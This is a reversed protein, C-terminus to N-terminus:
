FQFYIFDYAEGKQLYFIVLVILVYAASRVPFPVYHWLKSAKHEYHRIFYEVIHLLFLAAMWVLEPHKLLELMPMQIMKVTMDWAQGISQARFFVWTWTIVHFFVLVAFVRYVKSKRLQEVWGLRNLKLSWKHVIQLLGHVGGWVVFTWMAGHWLGSILMAALLNFQVRIPGKRNGGLGIYIYDRIWRSLSIHWRKWFETPSASLYPTDFNLILRIGLICGLGMAMDSYASFDYYIQFGFGYAAIWSEVSSIADGKAFLPNVIEAIPDALAIKKLLGVVFLFLGYKIESWRLKKQQIEDLQPILEDGRMIPGAVLQPFLSIYVWFRVLSTTPVIDGRRVDILYSLLQFTYFSIGVPLIISSALSDYIGVSLGTIEKLTDLLFLTYKFFVLNAINLLIGVWFLWRSKKMGHVCLFTAITVFLFVALMGWGSAAYFIVNGIALIAIRAKRFLAYGIFLLAFFIWFNPSHFVM